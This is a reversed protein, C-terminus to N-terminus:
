KSVLIEEFRADLILNPINDPNAPTIRSAFLVSLKRFFILHHIQAFTHLGPLDSTKDLRLQQNSHATAINRVEKFDSASHQSYAALPCPNQTTFNKKNKISLLKIICFTLLIIIFYRAM